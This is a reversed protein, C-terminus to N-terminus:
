DKYKILCNKADKRIGVMNRNRENYPMSLIQRAYSSATTEDGLREYMEMLLKLPYLRAPVMNHSLLYHQRADEYQGLAEFNKGIINHFMPDSSIRSGKILIVNSEEYNGCKHLAYGYDYLFRYNDKLRTYLPAYKTIAEEYLDMGSLYRVVEWQKEAEGKVRLCSLPYSCFAFVALVVLGYSLPSKKWLLLAILGVVALMCGLMVPVGYEVGIRFYENFAYEPCGAVRVIIAPRAAEAFYEAQTEGYVGLVSGKGYGSWPHEMMARIEMHWIHLRGIASDRKLFFLGFLMIVVAVVIGTAILKRRKLWEWLGLERFGFVTAAVGFGLWAARSMTAPFVLFCLVCSVLSLWLLGRDPWRTAKRNQVIFAALVAMLVGICGGYPGPSRFTGTLVFSSHRSMSLGLVQCLGLVSEYMAAINVLLILISRLM